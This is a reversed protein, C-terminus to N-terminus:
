PQGTRALFFDMAVSPVRDRPTPWGKIRSRFVIM